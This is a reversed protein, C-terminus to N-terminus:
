VGKVGRLSPLRGHALDKEDEAHQGIAVDLPEGFGALPQVHIRAALDDREAGLDLVDVEHELAPESDARSGSRRDGREFRALDHALHGEDIRRGRHDRHVRDGFRREKADRIRAHALLESGVEREGRAEVAREAHEEGIPDAVRRLAQSVAGPGLLAVRAVLQVVLEEVVHVEGARL